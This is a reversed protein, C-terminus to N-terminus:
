LDPNLGKQNTRHLSSHQGSSSSVLCLQSVLPLVGDPTLLKPHLPEVHLKEPLNEQELVIM